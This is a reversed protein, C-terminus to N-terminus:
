RIPTLHSWPIVKPSGTTGSSFLISTTANIPAICPEPDPHTLALELFADWRIDTGVTPIAKDRSMGCMIVVAPPRPEAISCIKAYLEVVKGSRLICDQM